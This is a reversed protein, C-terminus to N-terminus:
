ELEGDLILRGRDILALRDPVAEVESLRHTVIVVTCGNAAADVVRRLVEDQAGPDLGDTPEDLVLLEPAHALAFAILTRTRTGKSLTAMRASPELFWDRSLSEFVTPAWTPYFSAT